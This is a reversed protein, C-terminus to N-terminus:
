RTIVVKSSFVHAGANATVHYVGQSLESLDLIDTNGQVTYVAKGIANYVTIGSVYGSIGTVHFIGTGPNPYLSFNGTQVSHATGTAAGEFRTGDAKTGPSFLVGAMAIHHQVFAAGTIDPNLTYSENPNDSQADSDFTLRNSGSADTVVIKEGSNGMSLGATGIDAVVVAGGFTGTPTGGGFIVLVGHGPVITGTPVTHRLTMSDGTIFYDYVKYGSVDLANASTNYFEIFSDQEQDYVGDGNADGQLTTNSPDYLVENIILQAPAQFCILFVLISSLLFKM